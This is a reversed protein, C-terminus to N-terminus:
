QKLLKNIVKHFLRCSFSTEEIRRQGNGSGNESQDEDCYRTKQLIICLPWIICTYIVKVQDTEMYIKHPDTFVFVILGVLFLHTM